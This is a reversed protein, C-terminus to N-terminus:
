NAQVVQENPPVVRSQKALERSAYVFILFTLLGRTVM